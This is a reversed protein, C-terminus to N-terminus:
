NASVLRYWLSTEDCTNFFYGICLFSCKELPGSIKIKECSLPITINLGLCIDNCGGPAGYAILCDLSEGKCREGEYKSTGLAIILVIIVIIIKKKTLRM